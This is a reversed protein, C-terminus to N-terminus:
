IAEIEHTLQQLEQIAVEGMLVYVFQRDRWVVLSPGQDVRVYLQSASPQPFQGQPSRALQYFSLTQGPKTQYTLRIGRTFGLECFSGGLLQIGQQILQPLPDPLVMKGQFEDRIVTVDTTQLDVPGQSRALSRAHDALLQEMGQWNQNLFTASTALVEANSLTSPLGAPPSSFPRRALQQRLHLNHVGLVIILGAALSSSLVWRWSRRHRFGQTTNLASPAEIQDAAALISARLQPQPQPEALAYPISNLAEQLRQVEINLTPTQQLLQQFLVSEQSDLDGLVYGATLEQIQQPSLAQTM